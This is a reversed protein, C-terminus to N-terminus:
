VRSFGREPQASSKSCFTGVLHVVLEGCPQHLLEAALRVGGLEHGHHAHARRSEASGRESLGQRTSNSLAELRPFRPVM